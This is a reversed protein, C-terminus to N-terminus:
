TLQNGIAQAAVLAIVVDPSFQGSLWGGTDFRHHPSQRNGLAKIKDNPL